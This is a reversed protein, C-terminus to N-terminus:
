PKFPLNNPCLLSGNQITCPLFVPTGMSVVETVPNYTVTIIPVPLGGLSQFGPPPAYTYVPLIGNGYILQRCEPDATFVCGNMTETPTQMVLRAQTSLTESV